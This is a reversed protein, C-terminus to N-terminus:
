RWYMKVVNGTGPDASLKLDFQKDNVNWQFTADDNEPYSTRLRLNVGSSNISVIPIMLAYKGPDLSGTVLSVRYRDNGNFISMTDLTSQIDLTIMIEKPSRDTKFTQYQDTLVFGGKWRMDTIEDDDVIGSTNDDVYKKTAAQNDQTPDGSLILAGSMTDGSKKVYPLATSGGIINDVKTNVNEIDSTNDSIQQDATTKWDNIEQVDQQLNDIDTEIGSIATSNAKTKNDVATLQSYNVADNANTGSAVNEIKVADGNKNQVKAAQGMLVVDGTEAKVVAQGNDNYVSGSNGLKVATGDSMVIDGSMTGGALPLYDGPEGGGGGTASLTGDATINLGSGVKVAGLTSATAVPLTSLKADVYAKNAAQNNATPNGSLVLPGSMTDGTKKVYGTLQTNGNVINDIATNVEELESNIGNISSTNEKIKEDLQNDAEQRAQAEQTINQQLQTDANKRDQIENDIRTGLAADAAQRNAIENRLDNQLQTVNGEVTQLRTNIEEVDSELNTIKDANEQALSLAEDATDQATEVKNRLETIGNYNIGTNQVLNAIETEFDNKFGCDPRKSVYWFAVNKPEEYNIPVDTNRGLYSMGISGTKAEVTQMATIVADTCGYDKMINAVNVGQMGPNDQCGTFFMITQGIGSNYGIACIAQKTTLATAQATVEGNQVIPIVGGIMDVIRDQCLVTNTVDGKYVKLVGYENFGAIYGDADTNGPIEMGKWKAPGNWGTQAPDVATMIANASKVFSYDGMFQRVNSNTGNDYALGLKVRIPCGKRDFKNVRIIHYVASDNADYGQELHVECDDYYVDNSKAAGVVDNLAKFCNEQIYNWRNICENTKAVVQAMQQAPNTGPLPPCIPAIPPPIPIGRHSCEPNCPPTYPPKCPPTYPPKCFDTSGPVCDHNFM